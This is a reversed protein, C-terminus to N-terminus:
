NQRSPHNIRDVQAEWPLAHRVLEGILLDAKRLKLNQGGSVEGLQLPHQQFRPRMLSVLM